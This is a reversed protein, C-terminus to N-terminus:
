GVDRFQVKVGSYETKFWEKYKDQKAQSLNDHFLVVNRNNLDGIGADDFSYGVTIRNRQALVLINEIQFPALSEDLLWYVRRYQTRPAGRSKIPPDNDGNPDNPDTSDLPKAKFTVIHEALLKLAKKPIDAEYWNGVTFLASGKLFEDDGAYLNDLYEVRKMFMDKGPYEVFGSETIILKCDADNERLIDYLFKYRGTHFPYGGEVGDGYEHLSLYHGLLKAEKCAPLMEKVAWDDGRLRAKNGIFRKTRAVIGDPQLFDQPNGSSESYIALKWPDGYKAFLHMMAIYFDSQWTRHSPWENFTEWVDIDPNKEWEHPKYADYYMQAADEPRVGSEVWHDMGQPDINNRIVSTSGVTLINSNARKAEFAMGFDGRCKVVALPINATRDIFAGAGKRNGTTVHIGILSSSM